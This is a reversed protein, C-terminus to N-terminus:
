NLTGMIDDSNIIYIYLIIFHEVKAGYKTSNDVLFIRSNEVSFPQGCDIEVCAPPWGSWSGSSLCSIESEGVLKYGHGCSFRCTQFNFYNQFKLNFYNQFRLYIFYNRPKLLKFLKSIKLLQFLKTTWTNVLIVERVQGQGRDQAHHHEHGLERSDRAGSVSNRWLHSDGAGLWGWVSM